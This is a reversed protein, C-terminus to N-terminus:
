FAGSQTRLPSFWLRGGNTFPFSLALRTTVQARRAGRGGAAGLRTRLRRTGQATGLRPPWADSVQIREHLRQKRLAWVEAELRHTGAAYPRFERKQPGLKVM